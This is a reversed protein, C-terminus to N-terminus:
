CGREGREAKGPSAYTKEQQCNIIVKLADKQEKLAEFGKGTEILPLRHTVVQELPIKNASVLKIAREYDLPTYVRTGKLSIEKFNIARLDVAAPEKFVSVLTIMGGPKVLETMQLAAAIAGSVEFLMDMGEEHTSKLVHRVIDEKAPDVVEFGLDTLKRKRFPNIESITLNDIGSYQLLLALLFGMPGAGIVLVKDGIKVSSERISHVVVALPEILAGLVPDIEKEIKFLLHLPIAVYEAMGGDRDIGIMKLNRCIHENGTRCALCRRCSILPFSVVKDGTGFDFEKEPDNIEVLEGYFEHGLILPAKARPHKGALIALDTGCIGAYDVRVLGEGIEPAPISRDKIEIQNPSVYVAARM